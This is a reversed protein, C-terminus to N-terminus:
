MLLLFSMCHNLICTNPDPMVLNFDQWENSHVKPLNSM